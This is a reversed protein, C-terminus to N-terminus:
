RGAWAALSAAAGPPANSGPLTAAGGPSIATAGPLTTATSVAGDAADVPPLVTILTTMGAPLASTTPTAATAGPATSSDHRCRIHNHAASHNDDTVRDPAGATTTTTPSSTTPSLTAPSAMAPAQVATTSTSGYRLTKLSPLQVPKIFVIILALVVLCAGAIGLLKRSRELAGVLAALFFGSLLLFLIISVSSRV